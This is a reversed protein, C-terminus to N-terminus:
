KKRNCIEKIFDPSKIKDHNNNDYIIVFDNGTGHAKTVKINM